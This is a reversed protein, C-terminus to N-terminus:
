WARWLRGAGAAGSGGGGREGAHVVTVGYQPLSVSFPLGALFAAEEPALGKVFEFKEDAPPEGRQWAAWAALSADDNNGRACFGGVEMMLQLV